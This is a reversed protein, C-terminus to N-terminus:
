SKLFKLTIFTMIVWIQVSWCCQVSNLSCDHCPTGQVKPQQWRGTYLVTQSKSALITWQKQKHNAGSELSTLQGKDFVIPRERSKFSNGADLKSCQRDKEKDPNDMPM